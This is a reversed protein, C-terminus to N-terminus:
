IKRPLTMTFVTGVKPASEFALKGNMKSVLTNCISLGLGTGQTKTTYFPKFINSTSGQDIGVGTDAITIRFQDDIEDLNITINDGKGSEPKEKIAHSSNVILNFCIQIFWTRNTTILDPGKLNNNIIKQIARHESKTLRLTEDIAEKLSFESQVDSKHYLDTFNKIIEECRIVNHNIDQMFELVESDEIEETLIESTMRMGFLPNSLEHRLTNLLEGLFIVRQHHYIEASENIQERRGEIENKGSLIQNYFKYINSFSIAYHIANKFRDTLKLFLEQENEQAPLFANRTFLIIVSANPFNYDRALFTGLFNTNFSLQSAQFLKRKSKKILKNFNNFDEATITDNFLKGTSDLGCIKATVSGKEHIFIDILDYKEKEMSQFISNLLNQYVEEPTSNNLNEEFVTSKQSRFKSIKKELESLSQFLEREGLYTDSLSNNEAINLCNRIRREAEKLGPYGQNEM